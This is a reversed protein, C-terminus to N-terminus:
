FFFFFFMFFVYQENVGPSLQTSPVGCCCYHYKYIKMSLGYRPNWTTPCMTCPAGFRSRAFLGHHMMHSIPPCSVSGWSVRPSLHVNLDLLWLKLFCMCTILRHIVVSSFTSLNMHSFFLQQSHPLCLSVYRQQVGHPSSSLLGNLLDHVSVADFGNM